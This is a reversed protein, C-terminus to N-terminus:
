WKWKEQPYDREIEYENIDNGSWKSEWRVTEVKYWKLQENGIGWTCNCGLPPQKWKRNNERRKRGCDVDKDWGKEGGWGAGGWGLRSSLPRLRATKYQTWHLGVEGVQKDAGGGGVRQSPGEEWQKVVLHGHHHHDIMSWQHDHGRNDQHGM